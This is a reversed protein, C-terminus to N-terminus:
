SEGNYCLIEHSDLSNKCFSFGVGSFLQIKQFSCLFLGYAPHRLGGYREEGHKIGVRFLQVSEAQHCLSPCLPRRSHSFPTDSGMIACIPVVTLPSSFFVGPPLRFVSLKALFYQSKQQKTIYYSPIRIHLRMEATGQFSVM